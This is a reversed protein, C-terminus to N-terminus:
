LNIDIILLYNFEVKHFYYTSGISIISYFLLVVQGWCRLSDFLVEGHLYIINLKLTAKKECVYYIIICTNNYPVVSRKKLIVSRAKEKTWNFVCCFYSM